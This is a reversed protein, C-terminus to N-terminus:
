DAIDGPMISSDEQYRAHMRDDFNFLFLIDGSTIISSAPIRFVSFSLSVKQITMDMTALIHTFDVSSIRSWKTTKFIVMFPLM